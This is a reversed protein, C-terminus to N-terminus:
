VNIYSSTLWKGNHRVLKMTEEQLLRVICHKPNRVHETDTHQLLKQTYM